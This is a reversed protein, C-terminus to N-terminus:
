VPLSKSDRFLWHNAATQYAIPIDKEDTNEVTSAIESQPKFGEESWFADQEGYVAKIEIVFRFAEDENRIKNHILMLTTRASIRQRWRNFRPYKTNFEEHWRIIAGYSGQQSCAIDGTALRNIFLRKVDGIEELLTEIRESWKWFTESNGVNDAKEFIALAVDLGRWLVTSYLFGDKQVDEDNSLAQYRGLLTADNVFLGDKTPPLFDQLEQLRGYSDMNNKM